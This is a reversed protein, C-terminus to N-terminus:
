GIRATRSIWGEFEFCGRATEIVEAGPLDQVDNNADLIEFCRTAGAAAGELAWAVGTLAQIPAYLLGLYSVFVTLAGLTLTGDLVHMTGVYIM